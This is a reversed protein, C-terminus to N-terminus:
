GPHRVSGPSGHCAAVHIFASCAEFLAIHSGVAQTVPFAATASYLTEQGLPPSVLSEAGHDVPTTADAHMGFSIARLVPPQRRHRRTAALRCGALCRGPRRLTPPTRLVSSAPHVLLQFQNPEHGCWSSRPPSLTLGPGLAPHPFDARGTRHAPPPQAPDHAERARGVRRRSVPSVLM